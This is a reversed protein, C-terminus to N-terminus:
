LNKIIQPSERTDFCNGNVITMLNKGQLDKRYLFGSHYERDQLDQAMKKEDMVFSAATDFIRLNAMNGTKISGVPQPFNFHKEMYKLIHNQPNYSALRDVSLPDFNSHTILRQLLIGYLELCRTGPSAPLGNKWEKAKKSHPAHDSGIWVNKQKAIKKM